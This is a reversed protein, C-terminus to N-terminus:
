SNINLHYILDRASHITIQWLAIYLTVIIKIILSNNYSQLNMKVGFIEKDSIITFM